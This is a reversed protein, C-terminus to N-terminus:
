VVRGGRQALQRGGVGGIYPRHDLPLFTLSSLALYWTVSFTLLAVLVATPATM